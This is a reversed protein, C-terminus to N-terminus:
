SRGMFEEHIAEVTRQLDEEQIAISINLESSGQAIMVINIKRAGLSNFLRAAVGPTGRMGSGIIAVICVDKISDIDMIDKGLYEFEIISKCGDLSRQPVVFSLNSESMSQSIMKINIGEDALRGLIKTAINGGALPGKITVISMGRLVAVAKVIDGSHSKKGSESILTGTGEPRFTNRVYIPIKREMAPILSKPHFAKAGFAALEMAEEYTLEPITRSKILKPDATMMGDVDSWIIIESADLAAGLITATYDSGGRGFTTIIGDKTVGAFGGIVPTIGKELLPILRENVAQRTANMLPNADGFTTDTIIGAEGGTLGVARIGKINLTAAALELSYREGFSMIYDLIRPTLDRTYCLSYLIHGLEDDVQMLKSKIEADINKMSLRAENRHREANRDLFGQVAKNDGREAVRAVEILEDTVGKIASVVIIARQEKYPRLIDVIRNYGGDKVSTGGFKMVITKMLSGSRVAKIINSVSRVACHACIVTCSNKYAARGFKPPGFGSVPRALDTVM